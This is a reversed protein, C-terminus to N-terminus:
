SCTISLLWAHIQIDATHDLYEYLKARRVQGKAEKERTGDVSGGVKAGSGDLSARSMPSTTETRRGKSAQGIQYAQAKQQAQHASPLRLQKPTSSPLPPSSPGSTPAPPSPLSSRAVNRKLGRRKRPPLSVIEDVKISGSMMQQTRAGRRRRRM